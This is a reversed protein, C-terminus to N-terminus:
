IGETGHLLGAFIWIAQSTRRGTGCNGGQTYEFQAAIENGYYKSQLRHSYLAAVGCGCFGQGM